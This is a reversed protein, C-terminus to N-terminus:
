KNKSSKDRATLLIENFLKMIDETQVRGKDNRVFDKARQYDEEGLMDILVGPLLSINGKEVEILKETVEWDGLVDENLDCVFGAETTIKM